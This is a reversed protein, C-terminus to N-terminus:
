TKRVMSFTASLFTRRAGFVIPITSTAAKSALAPYTPMALIVAVKRQVMEAALTALDGKSRAWRYDLTTNQGEVFGAENLGKHIAPMIHPPLGSPPVNTLLGIVPMAPQQARVALPRAAAASGVVGM